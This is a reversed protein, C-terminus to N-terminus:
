LPHIYEDHRGINLVSPQTGDNDAPQTANTSEAPANAGSQVIVTSYENQSGSLMDYTSPGPETQSNGANNVKSTALRRSM